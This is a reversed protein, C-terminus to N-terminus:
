SLPTAPNSPFSFTIFTGPTTTGGWAKFAINLTSDPNLSDSLWPESILPSSSNSFDSVTNQVYLTVTPPLFAGTPIPVIVTQGNAPTSSLDFAITTGSGGAPNDILEQIEAELRSLRTDTEWIEATNGPGGPLYQPTSSVFEPDLIPGEQFEEYPPQPETISM